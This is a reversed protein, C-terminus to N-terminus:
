TNVFITINTCAETVDDKSMKLFKQTGKYRLTAFAYKKINLVVKDKILTVGLGEDIIKYGPGGFSTSNSGGGTAIM